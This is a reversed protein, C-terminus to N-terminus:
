ATFFKKKIIGYGAALLLLFMWGDPVPIPPTTPDGGPDTGGAGPGSLVSQKPATNTNLNVNASLTTIGGNNMAVVSSAANGRSSNNSIFTVGGGALGGSANDKENQYSQSQSNYTTAYLSTNGTASVAYNYNGSSLKSTSEDAHYDPINLENYDNGTGFNTNQANEIIGGTFNVNQNAVFYTSSSYLDPSGIPSYLVAM